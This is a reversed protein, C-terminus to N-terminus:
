ARAVIFIRRFPFLTTGNARRPYAEALRAQYATEFAARESPQLPELLPRLATGRVWELVPAEGKLVHQYETEWIDLTRALPALLDYYVAPPAVPDPRLLPALRSAWPGTSAVDRMLVHSPQDFNRPMQIALVGGPALARLLRPILTEHGDVWQLAANSFVLAPPTEPQWGEVRGERWEIGEGEAAAKALMEASSDFGVARRGPWRAAIARLHAGTGCGLDWLDGPPLDGVRALLEFGPRLREDGYRLYQGPDWITM